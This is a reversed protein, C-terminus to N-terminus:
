KNTSTRPELSLRLMVRNNNESMNKNKTLYKIASQILLHFVHMSKRCLQIRKKNKRRQAYLGECLFTITYRYLENGRTM